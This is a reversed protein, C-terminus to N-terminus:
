NNNANETWQRIVTLMNTLSQLVTINMLSVKAMEHRLIRLLLILIHENWVAKLFLKTHINITRM